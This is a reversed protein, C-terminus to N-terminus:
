LSINRETEKDFIHANSMEFHFTQEKGIVDQLKAEVVDSPVRTCLERGEVTFHV